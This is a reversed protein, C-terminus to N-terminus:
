RVRRQHWPSAGSLAENLATLNRLGETGLWEDLGGLGDKAYAAIGGKWTARGCLVGAYATGAETALNLSEIFQATSVGGSLYIFPVSSADAAARFYELAEARDYLKPGTFACGGEMYKTDIPVEVKLVDVAYRADSFERMSRLVIEPRLKAYELDRERGSIADYSLLELFFALECAQCEAGVREVLARKVDNVAPDEFPSYYILLKAADAGWAALRRVSATPILDPLRGPRANDYGSLEYALLLGTADHRERAATLGFEPDLLVATTHPSLIRVVASKFQAILEPTLQDPRTGVAAALAKVLSGRQDMALASIVGREDALRRLRGEKASTGAAASDPTAASRATPPSTTNTTM